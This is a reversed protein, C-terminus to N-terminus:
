HELGLADLRIVELDDAHREAFHLLAKRYAQECPATGTLGSSAHLMAHCALLVENLVAMAATALKGVQVRDPHVEKAVQM